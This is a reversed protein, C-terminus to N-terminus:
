GSTYQETNQLTTFSHSKLLVYVILLITGGTAHCEKVGVPSGSRGKPTHKHTPTTHM